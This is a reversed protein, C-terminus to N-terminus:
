EAAVPRLRSMGEPLWGREDLEAVLVRENSYSHGRDCLWHPSVWLLDRALPGGCLPCRLAGPLRRRELDARRPRTTNLM